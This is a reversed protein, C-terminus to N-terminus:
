RDVRVPCGLAVPVSVSWWCGRHWGPRIVLCARAPTRAVQCLQWTPAMQRPSQWRRAFGVTATPAARLQRLPLPIRSSHCWRLAWFGCYNDNEQVARCRVRDHVGVMTQTTADGSAPVGTTPDHATPTSMSTSRGRVSQKCRDAASLGPPALPYRHAQASKERRSTEQNNGDGRHDRQERGEEDRRWSGCDRISSAACL